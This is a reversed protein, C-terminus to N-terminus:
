LPWFGQEKQFKDLIIKSKAKIRSLANDIGKINIKVKIRKANIKEAIEEYSNRKAYLSFVEREFKSLSKILMMMINKYLEEKQLADSVDGEKAPVINVLTLEEDNGPQEQDLSMSSNLVKKKNQYSSKFETALHRRICLIAFREFPAPGEISGRNIDYDKIAKFQLAFLAEQYIDDYNYGPINFKSVIRQIRPRLKESIERFSVNIIDQSKNKRIINVLQIYRLNEKQEDTLQIKKKQKLGKKKTNKARGKKRPQPM